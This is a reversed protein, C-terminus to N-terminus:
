FFLSLVRPNTSMAPVSFCFSVCSVAVYSPLLTPAAPGFSVKNPPPPPLLCPRPSFFIVCSLSSLYTLVSNPKQPWALSDPCKRPPSPCKLVPFLSRCGLPSNQTSSLSKISQHILSYKLPCIYVQPQNM